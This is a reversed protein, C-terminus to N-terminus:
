KIKNLFGALYLNVISVLYESVRDLILKDDSNGKLKDKTQNIIKFLIKSSIKLYNFIGKIIM